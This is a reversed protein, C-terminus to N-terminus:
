EIILEKAFPEGNRITVIYIGRTTEGNKLMFDIVIIDNEYVPMPFLSSASGNSKQFDKFDEYANELRWFDLYEYNEMYNAVYCSGYHSAEYDKGNIALTEVIIPSDILDAIYTSLMTVSEGYHEHIMNAMGPLDNNYYSTGDLPVHASGYIGMISEGGLTDYERIFNQAMMEERYHGAKIGNISNPDYLEYFTKGQEINELVLNYEESDKMGNEELYELYRACTTDYQHGIDTGHFVTEPCNEKILRYFEWNVDAYASTGKQDERLQELITDDDSQMWINLFQAGAVSTEIFLHRMGENHYHGYWLEFEKITYSEMGHNEGYLYITPPEKECGSFGTILMVALIVYAILKKIM